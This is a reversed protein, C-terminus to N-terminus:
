SAIRSVTARSRARPYWPGMMMPPPWSLSFTHSYTPASWQVVSAPAPTSSHWCSIEPCTCSPSSQVRKNAAVYNGLVGFCLSAKETTLPLGDGGPALVQRKRKGRSLLDNTCRTSDAIRIIVAFSLYLSRNSRRTVTRTSSAAGSLPCLPRLATVPSPLSCCHPFPLRGPTLQALALSGVM